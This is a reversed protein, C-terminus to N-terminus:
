RGGIKPRLLSAYLQGVSPTCYWNPPDPLPLPQPEVAARVPQLDRPAAPAPAPTATRPGASTTCASSLMAGAIRFHVYLRVPAGNRNKALRHQTLADVQHVAKPAQLLLEPLGHGANDQVTVNVIDFHCVRGFESASGPHARLPDQGSPTSVLHPNTVYLWRLFYPDASCIANVNAPASLERSYYRRTLYSPFTPL